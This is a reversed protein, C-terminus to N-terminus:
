PQEQRRKEQGAASGFENELARHMMVPMIQQVPDAGFGLDVFGIMISWLNQLICAKQVDTLDMGDLYQWYREAPLPPVSSFAGMERQPASEAPTNEFNKM